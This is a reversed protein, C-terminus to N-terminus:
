AKREVRQGNKVDREAEAETPFSLDPTDFRVDFGRQFIRLDHTGTEGFDRFLEASIRAQAPFERGDVATAGVGLVDDIGERAELSGQYRRAAPEVAPQCSVGARQRGFFLVPITQEFGQSADGTMLADVDAAIKELAM